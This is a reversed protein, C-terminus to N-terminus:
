ESKPLSQTCQKASHKEKCTSCIHAFSCKVNRCLGNNYFKCPLSNKVPQKSLSPLNSPDSSIKERLRTNALHVNDTGWRFGYEAQLYRYEEDYGLVSHWSYRTALEGIKATYNIYDIVSQGSLVGHKILQQMIRANAMIWQAPSVSQLKVKKPGTKLILKVSGDVGLVQEETQMHGRMVFDFDCIMLPKCESTGNSFVEPGCVMGQLGQTVPQQLFGLGTNATTSATAAVTGPTDTHTATATVASPLASGSNHNRPGQGLLNSHNALLSDLTAIVDQNSTTPPTQDQPNGEPTRTQQSSTGPDDSTPQPSMLTSIAKELALRQALPLDKTIPKLNPPELLCMLEMSTFGARYLKELTDQTLHSAKAWTVIAEKDQENESINLEPTSAM